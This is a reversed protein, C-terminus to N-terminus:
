FQVGDAGPVGSVYYENFVSGDMSLTCDLSSTRCYDPTQMREIEIYGRPTTDRDGSGGSGGGCSALFILCVVFIVGEWNYKKSCMDYGQM